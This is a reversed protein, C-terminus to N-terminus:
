RCALRRNNAQEKPTAWCCNGPAYGLNNNERELTRGEPREGMDTFFHEFKEWRPDFSIGRGGYRDWNSNNPNSCRSKMAQWSIYTPTGYMGHTSRGTGACGCSTVHGNRLNTGLVINEDGCDCICLWRPNRKADSTARAFVTLRGFRLGVLNKRPPAMLLRDGLM